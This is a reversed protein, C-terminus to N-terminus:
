LSRVAASWQQRGLGLVRRADLLLRAASRAGARSDAGAAAARGARLGCLLGNHLHRSLREGRSLCKASLRCLAQNWMLTDIHRCLADMVYLDCM